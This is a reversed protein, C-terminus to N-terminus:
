PIFIDLEKFYDKGESTWDVKVVYRGHSLKHLPILQCLSTDVEVPLIVDLLEDSPRYIDINGTIKKGRFDPPFQVVLNSLDTKVQLSMTLANANRIKVLKEEHRLEKPYYDEEVMSWKQRQAYIIFAACAALFLVIVIFIGTGWNWKM